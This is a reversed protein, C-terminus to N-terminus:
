DLQRLWLARRPLTLPEEDSLEATFHDDVVQADYGHERAAAKLKPFSSVDGLGLALHDLLEIACEVEPPAAMPCAHTPLRGVALDSHRGTHGTPRTALVGDRHVIPGLDATAEESAVPM